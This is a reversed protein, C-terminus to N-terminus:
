DGDILNAIADVAKTSADQRLAQHIENFRDHINKTIERNDFYELVAKGLNDPIAEHQIFEPVLTEGALLNPLSVNKVKM